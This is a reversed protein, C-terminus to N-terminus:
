QHRVNFPPTLQANCFVTLLLLLVVTSIKLILRKM